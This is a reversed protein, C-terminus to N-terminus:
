QDFFEGSIPEGFEVEGESTTVILHGAGRECLTILFEDDPLEEDVGAHFGVFARWSLARKINQRDEETWQEKVILRMVGSATDATFVQGGLQLRWM